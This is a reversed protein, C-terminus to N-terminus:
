FTKVVMFNLASWGTNANNKSPDNMFHSEIGEGVTYQAAVSLSKDIRYRAFLGKSKTYWWATTVPTSSFTTQLDGSCDTDDNCYRDIYANIEWNTSPRYRATLAYGRNYGNWYIYQHLTDVVSGYSFSMVQEVTLDFEEWVFWRAGILNVVTEYKGSNLWPLRSDLNFDLHHRDYRFQITRSPSALTLNSGHIRSSQTFEGSNADGTFLYMIDAKPYLVPIVETAQARFEWGKVEFTAYAQVGDGSAALDRVQDRYAFPPLNIFDTNFPLNRRQNFYGVLHQVRGVRVGFNGNGIDGFLYRINAHRENSYELQGHISFLGKTYSFVAGIDAYSDGMRVPWKGHGVGHAYSTFYQITFPREVRDCGSMDVIETAGNVDCRIDKAETDALVGISCILLNGALIFSKLM